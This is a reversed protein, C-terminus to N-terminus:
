PLMEKASQATERADHAADEHKSALCQLLSAAEYLREAVTMCASPDTTTHPAMDAADRLAREMVSAWTAMVKPNIV